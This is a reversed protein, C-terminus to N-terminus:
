LEIAERILSIADGLDDDLVEQLTEALKDDADQRLTELVSELYEVAEELKQAAEEMQQGSEATQLGEPLNDFKNREDDAHEFLDDHVSDICEIIKIVEDDYIATFDAGGELQGILTQMTDAEASLKAALGELDKRQQKNV